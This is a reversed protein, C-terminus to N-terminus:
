DGCGYLLGSKEVVTDDMNCIVYPVHLTERIAGSGGDTYIKAEDLLMAGTPM